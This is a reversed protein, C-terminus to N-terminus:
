SMPGEGRDRAYANGDNYIVIEAIYQLLLAFSPGSTDIGSPSVKGM